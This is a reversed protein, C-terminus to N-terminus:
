VRVMNLYGGSSTTFSVQCPGAGLNGHAKIDTLSCSPIRFRIGGLCLNSLRVPSLIVM